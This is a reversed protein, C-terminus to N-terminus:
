RGEFSMARHSCELVPGWDCLAPVAPFEVVVGVLAFFGLPASNAAFGVIFFFVPVSIRRFAVLAHCGSCHAVFHVGRSFPCARVVGSASVADAVAVDFVVM